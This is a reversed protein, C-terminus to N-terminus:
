IAPGYPQGAAIYCREHYQEVRAWVGGVYVNAIVRMPIVEPQNTTAKAKFKIPRDCACCTASIGAEVTRLVARSTSPCTRTLTAKL